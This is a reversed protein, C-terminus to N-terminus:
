SVCPFLFFVSKGASGSQGGILQLVKRWPSFFYLFERFAEKSKRLFKANKRRWSGGKSVVPVRMQQVQRCFSLFSWRRFYRLPFTM